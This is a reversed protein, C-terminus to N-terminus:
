AVAALRPDGPLCQSASAVVASALPTMGPVGADEDSVLVATVMSCAHRWHEKPFGCFALLDAGAEELHQAAEALGAGELHGVVRGHQAWVEEASPQAFISRVMTAAMGQASRPVKTLLDRLYHTRCRQWGAGPLTAGIAQVLGPHADSTVLQVGTLGRAVLSRWFALWGAGDEV